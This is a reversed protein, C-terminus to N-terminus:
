IYVYLMEYAKFTDPHDDIVGQLIEEALLWNKQIHHEAELLKAKIYNDM